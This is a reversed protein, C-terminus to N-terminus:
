PKAIGTVVAGIGELNLCCESNGYVDM